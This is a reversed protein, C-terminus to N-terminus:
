PLYKNPLPFIHNEKIYKLTQSNIYKNMIDRINELSKVTNEKNLNQARVLEMDIYKENFPFQYINSLKTRCKDINYRIEKMPPNPLKELMDILTALISSVKSLLSINSVLIPSIKNVLDINNDNIALSYVRKLVKLYNKHKGYLYELINYKVADSHMNPDSAIPLFDLGYKESQYSILINSIETFTGDFDFICDIKTIFQPIAMYLYFKDNNVIKYGNLIENPTWRITFLKRIMERMELWASLSGNKASQLLNYIDNYNDIDNKISNLKQETDIYDFDHIKGNKYYGLKHFINYKENIGSKIDMIYFKPTKEIKRVISQLAQAVDESSYNRNFTEFLDIDSSYIMSKLKSTGAITINNLDYSITEIAKSINNDYSPLIKKLTNFRKDM